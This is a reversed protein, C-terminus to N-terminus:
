PIDLCHFGMKCIIVVGLADKDCATSAVNTPM